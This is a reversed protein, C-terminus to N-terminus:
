AGGGQLENEILRQESYPLMAKLRDVLIQPSEGNQISLIGEIILRKERAEYKSKLKLKTAFPNWMVYGTFIGLITAIFAAAIADSMYATNDIHAMAAILGFVAGLVGLTPAYTGASAFINANDSHREEMEAIEMSLVEVIFESKSGDIIMQMGKRLFPDNVGSIMPELALVGDKRVVVSLESLYKVTGVSSKKGTTFILRFLHGLNKLERGTFSNLVSACTGVFIVVLAAPNYFVSFSIQKFFMAVIISIIGIIIGIISTLEM